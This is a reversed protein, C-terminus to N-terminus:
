KTKYIKDWEVGYDNCIIKKVYDSNFWYCVKRVNRNTLPSKQFDLSDRGKPRVHFDKHHAIRWYTNGKETYHHDALVNKRINMWYAEANAMDSEPMTWFIVRDLVYRERENEWTEIDAQPIDAERYIVFLYKRTILNYWESEYFNNTKRIENYDVNKFSMSEKINGNRQVRVNKVIIGAKRIEEADEIKSIGKHLITRTAHDYKSKESAKIEIDFAKAIQKYDYGKYVMLRDIIIQEFSKYRLEEASVLQVSPNEIDTNTTAKEGSALVYELITRMYTMKLSFARRPAGITNFPQKRLSDGKRGKRCAGLYMTDGESLEHAKGHRIKEIIVEYDHKIIQLDKGQLKWLVSYLFKLDCKNVGNKHLYFLILMLLCKKYFPSDEFKVNVIACFDIMDAILREKIALDTKTEKLPTTKLEVGAIAFDAEPNSNLDYGYYYKEVLQGLGGKGKIQLGEKKIDPNIQKVAEFLTKDILGKSYEFISSASNPNYRLTTAM